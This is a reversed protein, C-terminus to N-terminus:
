AHSAFLVSLCTPLVSRGQSTRDVAQPIKRAHYKKCCSNCVDGWAYFKVIRRYGHARGAHSALARKSAFTKWTETQVSQHVLLVGGAALFLSDFKEQWVHHEATARTQIKPLGQGRNQSPGELQHGTRYIPDLRDM